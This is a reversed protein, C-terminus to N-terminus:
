RDCNLVDGRRVISASIFLPYRDATGDVIPILLYIDEGGSVIKMSAM